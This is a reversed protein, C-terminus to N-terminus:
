ARLWMASTAFAKSHQQIPSAMKSFLRPVITGAGPNILESQEVHMLIFILSVLRTRPSTLRDSLNALSPQRVSSRVRGHADRHQM